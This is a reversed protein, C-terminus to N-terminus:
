DHKLPHVNSRVGDNTARNQVLVDDDGLARRHADIVIIVARAAKGHGVGPDGHDPLADRNGLSPRMGRKRITSSTSEVSMSFSTMSSRAACAPDRSSTAAIVNLAIFPSSSKSALRRARTEVRAPSGSDTKGVTPLSTETVAPTGSSM